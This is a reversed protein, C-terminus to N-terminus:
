WCRPSACASRGPRRPRAPPVTNIGSRISECVFTSTYVIFGIVALRFNTTDIYSQPNVGVERSAVRLGLQSFLVFYMMFIVVTLPVNRIINVYAAGFGRLMPVPSVRMAALITGFIMAGIASWFTLQITMWFAAFLHYRDDTLFSFDV